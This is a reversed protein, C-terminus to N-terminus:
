SKKLIENELFDKNEKKFKEIRDMENKRIKEIEFLVMNKGDSKKMKYYYGWIGRKLIQRIERFSMILKNLLFYYGIKNNRYVNFARYCKKIDITVRRKEPYKGFLLGVLHKTIRNGFVIYDRFDFKIKNSPEYFIYDMIIPNFRYKIVAVRRKPHNEIEFYDFLKIEIPEKNFEIANLVITANKLFEAHKKIYRYKYEMKSYRKNSMFYTSKSTKYILLDADDSFIINNKIKEYEERDYVSGYYFKNIDFWQLYANYVMLYFMDYTRNPAIENSEYDYLFVDFLERPVVINNTNYHWYKYVRKLTIIDKFVVGGNIYEIEKLNKSL